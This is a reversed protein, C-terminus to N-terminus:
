SVLPGGGYRAVRDWTALFLTTPHFSQDFAVSIISNVANLLNADESFRFFIDGSTTVDHDDWYPAIIGPRFPSLPFAEPTFDVFSAGFTLM